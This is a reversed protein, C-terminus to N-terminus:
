IIRGIRWGDRIAEQVTRPEACDGIMFFGNLEPIMAELGDVLATRPIFGMAIVVTDAEIKEVKGPQFVKVGSDEIEEVKTKKLIKVGKKILRPLLFMHIRPPVGRGVEDGEEILTVSKGKLTLFEATECGVRGGGIIVMHSGTGEGGTLAEVATVVHGKEIGKIQPIFPVSGTAVVVIDPRMDKILGADVETHLRVEVGSREMEYKYFEILDKFEQKYPPLAAVNLYGGLRDRKEFLTVRHGRSQAVRAAELGAPGGGAILVRKRGKAKKISFTGERGVEPNVSCLMPLYSLIRTICGQICAICPRVEELRGEMVKQPLHPDALLSRGIAVLDAKGRQLIEEAMEPHHIRGVAIVPVSVVEKIGAALPVFCGQPFNSPPTPVVRHSHGVSVQFADAGAEELSRALVKADKLTTGGKMYESGDIKCIIPYNPGVVQRVEAVVEQAFRIRAELGGGYDDQRHNLLPSLFQDILHAHACHVEVADFGLDQGIKAAWAYRKVMERVEGFTLARPKCSVFRPREHHIPHPVPSSTIPQTGSIKPAARSGAHHLQFAAKSGHNQILRALEKMGKHNAKNYLTFQYPLVHGRPDIAFPGTIILGTGGRARELYYAKGVETIAGEETGYNAMIAPFVLRNKLELPGIKVPEFIKKFM